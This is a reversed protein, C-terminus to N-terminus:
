AHEIRYDYRMYAKGYGYRSMARREVGNFVAGDFRLGAQAFRQICEEIERPATLDFRTVLLNAAAQQGIIAADTVALLPPTDIVVLDFRESLADLFTAFDCHMLLEAPNSPVTGRAIFSLGKVSTPTIARELDCGGCLLDALGKTSDAMGLTKHLFGKRMDADVLVVNRGTQAIVAAYNLAVFSKGVLPTPGTIMLRNGVDERPAFHLSTRLTRLAEIAPESSHSAALPWGREKGAPHEQLASFPVSTYVPLGFREVESAAQIGPFLLRRLLVFVIALVVGAIVAAAVISLRKPQVPRNIDYAAADLLHATGVASKRTVDLEQARNLMFTYTSNNVEVDRSLRLLEQQTAPLAELQASLRERQVSLNDIQSLLTQYAPHVETFRLAIEAQELRLKSLSTDLEVLQRLVAQIEFTIDVSKAKAQFANLASESRELRKRMDPLQTQIFEYGTAADNAARDANRAVYLRMIEDLTRNAQLPEKSELSLSLVGSREGLESVQLAAQYRLVTTVSREKTVYFRTSKNARLTDALLTVGNGTATEGVTGKLLPNGNHDLLSYGGIGDAVLVLPKEYLREPVQLEAVLLQEGGWAFGSIGLPPMNLGDFNEEFRQSVFSGIIPFRDPVVRIDLALNEVAAGIVSMSRILQQEAATQSLDNRNAEAPENFNTVNPRKPEIQVTAFSRYVPEALLAYSGAVLAFVVATLIILKIHDMLGCLVHLVSVDRDETHNFGPSFEDAM